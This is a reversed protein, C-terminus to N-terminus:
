VTFVSEGTPLAGASQIVWNLGLEAIRKEAFYEAQDVGHLGPEISNLVTLRIDRWSPMHHCEAIRAAGVPHVRLASHRMTLIRKAEIPNDFVRALTKISPTRM